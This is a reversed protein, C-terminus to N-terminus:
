VTMNDKISWVTRPAFYGNARLATNEGKITM